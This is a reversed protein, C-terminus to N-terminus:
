ELSLRPCPHRALELHGTTDDIRAAIPAGSYPPSPQTHAPSLVSQPICQPAHYPIRPPLTPALPFTGATDSKDGKGVGLMFLTPISRIVKRVLMMFRPGLVRKVSVM